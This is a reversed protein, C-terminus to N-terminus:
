EAALVCRVQSIRGHTEHFATSWRANVRAYYSNSSASSTSYRAMTSFGYNSATTRNSSYADTGQETSLVPLGLAVNFLNGDSSSYTTQSVIMSYGTAGGSIAKLLDINGSDLPSAIGVYESEPNLYRKFLMDSVPYWATAFSSANLDAHSSGNELVSAVGYRSICDSNGSAGLLFTFAGASSTQQLGSSNGSFIAAISAPIPNAYGAYTASRTCTGDSWSAASTANSIVAHNPDIIITNNIHKEFTPATFARYERMRPIRKTGYGPASFASCALQASNADWLPYSFKPRSGFDGSLVEATSAGNVSNAAPSNTLMALFVKQHDLVASSTIDQINLWSGGNQFFCNSGVTGGYLAWLIDGSTGPVTTNDPSASWSSFALDAQRNNRCALPYRDVFLNYGFDYFGEPLGLPAKGPGSNYPKNGVEFSPCRNHNLPDVTAARQIACMEYNVAERNVLVMDNPPIPVLATFKNVGEEPLHEVYGSSVNNAVDLHKVAVTYRYRPPKELSPVATKTWVTTDSVQFLGNQLDSVPHINDKVICPNLSEASYNVPCAALTEASTDFPIGEGIRIVLYRYLSTSFGDPLNFPRFALSVQAYSTPILRPDTLPLVSEATKGQTGPSRGFARVSAFNQWGPIGSGSAGEYGYSATKVVYANNNGDSLGDSQSVVEAYVSYTAGPKLSSNDPWKRIVYSGLALQSESTITTVTTKPRGEGEISLRLYVGQLRNDFFVQLADNGEARVSNLGAWAITSVVKDNGDENGSTDVARVMYRYMSGSTVDADLFSTTNADVSAILLPTSLSYRYVRFGSVLKDNAVLRWSVIIGTLNNRADEAGSFDDPSIYKKIKSTTGRSDIEGYCAVMSSLLTIALFLHAFSKIM